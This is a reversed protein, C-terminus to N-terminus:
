LSKWYPCYLRDNESNDSEMESSPLSKKTEQSFRQKRDKKSRQLGGRVTSFYTEVPMGAQEQSKIQAMGPRDIKAWTLVGIELNSTPSSYRLIDSSRRPFQLSGIHM